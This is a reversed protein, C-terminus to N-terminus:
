TTNSYTGTLGVRRHQLAIYKEKDIIPNGCVGSDYGVNSTFGYEDTETRSLTRYVCSFSQSLLM